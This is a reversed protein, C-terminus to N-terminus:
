PCRLQRDPQEVREVVPRTRDAGDLPHEGLATRPRDGPVDGAPHGAGAGLVLQGVAAPHEELLNPRDPQRGGTRAAPPVVVPVALLAEVAGPEVAAVVAPVPDANAYLPHIQAPGYLLEQGARQDVLDASQAVSLLD